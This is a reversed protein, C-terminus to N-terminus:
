RPRLVVQKPVEKTKVVLSNRCLSVSVSVSVCYDEVIEESSRYFPEYRYIITQERCGHGM